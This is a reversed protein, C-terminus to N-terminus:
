NSKILEMYQFVNNNIVFEKYSYGDFACKVLAENCIIITPQSLLVSEISSDKKLYKNLYTNIQENVILTPHIFYSANPVDLYYLVLHHDLALISFNDNNYTKQLEKSFQYVSYNEQINNINSINKISNSVLRGAGLFTILVLSVLMGNILLNNKILYFSLCFTYAFFILHHVAGSGSIVFILLSSANLLILFYDKLIVVIFILLFLFILINLFQVEESVQFIYHVIDHPIYRDSLSKTPLDFIAFKYYEFNSTISFLFLFFLHPISYGLIISWVDKKNNSLYTKILIPIVFLLSGFSILSSVSLFLGTLQFNFRFKYKFFIFLGLALFLLAYIESYGSQGLGRSSMLSIFLISSFFSQKLNKTRNEVTLYLIVTITFIILDNILKVIIINKGAFYTLLGFIYFLIPGKVEFQSIYPMNGRVIDQGAILFTSMDWNIIEENLYISQFIIHFIFIILLSSVKKYVTKM